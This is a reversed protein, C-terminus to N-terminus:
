DSCFFVNVSFTFYRGLTRFASYRLLMGSWILILGAIFIALRSAHIRADPVNRAVNIAVLIGVIMTIRIVSRSGGDQETAEDRQRGSQRAEMLFALGLTGWYIVAALPNTNFLPRM